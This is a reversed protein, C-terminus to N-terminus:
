IAVLGLVIPVCMQAETSLAMANAAPFPHPPPILIRDHADGPRVSSKPETGGRAVTPVFAGPKLSSLETPVRTGQAM